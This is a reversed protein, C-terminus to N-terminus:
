QPYEWKVGPSSLSRMEGLVTLGGLVLSWMDEGTTAGSAVVTGGLDQPRRERRRLFAKVWQESLPKAQISICDGVVSLCITKNYIFWHFQETM